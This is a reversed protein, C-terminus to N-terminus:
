QPRRLRSIPARYGLATHPRRFNYEELWAPLRRLRQNSTHYPRAYAWERLMTQIFREAKGNTQPTYARTFLHRIGLESCAAAFHKSRYGSGNDTLVREVRIGRRRFWQVARRLFDTVSEQTEDPLIEVYSVRSHDDICVHAFEWGIGRRRGRRDGHIRHGIGQIRGLKKTDLHILEGPREREYRRVPPTPDLNRLRPLGLRTLVASITSRPMHLRRAIAPSTFRRRRLKEIKCTRGPSTRRPVRWPRSSRDAFGAGHRARQVWRWLTRVSVGAAQAADASAWGLRLVREVMLERTYPTTKANPHLTM